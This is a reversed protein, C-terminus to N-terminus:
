VGPPAAASAPVAARLFAQWAEPNDWVLTAGLAQIGPRAAAPLRAYDKTTTVLPLGLNVAQRQLRALEHPRYVHHDAFSIEAAPTIGAERLTAFFKAPRGIGAFAVVQRGAFGRM